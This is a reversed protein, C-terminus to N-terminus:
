FLKMFDNPDFGQLSCESIEIGGDPDSSQAATGGWRSLTEIDEPPLFGAVLKEGNEFPGIAIHPVIELSVGQGVM